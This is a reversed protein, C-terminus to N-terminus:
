ELEELMSPILDESVRLILNLVCEKKDDFWPSFRETYDDPGILHLKAKWQWKKTEINQVYSTTFNINISPYNDNSM